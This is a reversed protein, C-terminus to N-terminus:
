FQGAKAAIGLAARALTKQADTGVRLWSEFQVIDFSDPEQKM